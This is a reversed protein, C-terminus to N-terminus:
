RILRDPCTVTGSNLLKPDTIAREATDLAQRILTQYVETNDCFTNNGLIVRSFKQNINAFGSDITVQTVQPHFETLKWSTVVTVQHGNEILKNSLTTITILSSKSCFPSFFLVHGSEALTFFFLTIFLKM